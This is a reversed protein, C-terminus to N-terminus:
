NKEQKQRRGGEALFPNSGLELHKIKKIDRHICNKLINISFM